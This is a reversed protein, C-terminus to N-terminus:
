DLKYGVLSRRGLIEGIKFVGYAELGYIAVKTWEGSSIIERWYAPSRARSFLTSYASQITSLSTPPQLREAIYIQKFLERAVSINYLLPERYSGFLSGFRQGLNGAVKQAGELAKAANKQASAYAKQAQESTSSSSSSSAFRSNPPRRLRLQIRQPRLQMLQNRM